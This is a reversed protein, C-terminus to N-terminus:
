AAPSGSLAGRDVATQDRGRCKAAYLASDAAQLLRDTDVPASAAAVGASITVRGLGLEAASFALRVREAYAQAQELGCDAMVAVFEEGGMRALIDAGRTAERFVKGLHSLVRDGADHGWEDNVRKFYDIDFSVVAVSSGARAARAMEAPMREEFGRRNLLGTLQDSRAEAASQALLQANRRSLTQVVAAVVAVVVMVDLWRDFFAGGAGLSWLAAAHVLALWVVVFLTEARGFFYAVWIVPWVYLVAGDGAGPTTALAYAIMAAGLPGLAFLARRPLRPGTLVVATALALAALGPALTFEPGGPVLGEGLNLFAAGAYMAAASRAVLRRDTSLSASPHEVSM